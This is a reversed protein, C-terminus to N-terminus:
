WVCVCMFHLQIPDREEGWVFVVGGCLPGSQPVCVALFKKSDVGGDVPNEHKASQRWRTITDNPGDNDIIQIAAKYPRAASCHQIGCVDIM